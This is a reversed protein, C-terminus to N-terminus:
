CKKREEAAKRGVELSVELVWDVPLKPGLQIVTEPVQLAQVDTNHSLEVGAVGEDIM